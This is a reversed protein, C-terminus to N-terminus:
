PRLTQISRTVSGSSSALTARLPSPGTGSGQLQLRYRLDGSGRIVLRTPSLHVDAAWAGMRRFTADHYSREDFDVTLTVPLTSHAEIDVEVGRDMRRAELTARAGSVDLTEEDLLTVLGPSPMMTGTVSPGAPGQDPGRTVLTILLAAAIATAPVVLRLAPRRRLVERLTGVWGTEPAAWGSEISRLVQDRFGVPADETGVQDIAGFLSRMEEYRGRAAPDGDMRARLKASDEPTAVGDLEDQVLREFRDDMM